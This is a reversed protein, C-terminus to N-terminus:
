STKEADEESPKTKSQEGQVENVDELEKLPIKLMVSDLTSHFFRSQRLESSMYLRRSVLGTSTSNAAPVRFVQDLAMLDFWSACAEGCWMTTESVILISQGVEQESM